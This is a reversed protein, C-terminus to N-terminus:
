DPKGAFVIWGGARFGPLFWPAAIPLAQIADIALVRDIQFGAGELLERLERWRFLHVEMEPIGRYTMRRDGADHHRLLRKGLQGLLWTRGQPDALNLYLNHAHLALTGGPKLIRYSEALARARAENGRIMGLTSFMSLAISFAGDPLCGLDCLNARIRRIELGEALAKAGLAKLMPRSLEVSTVPFGRRAFHLSLRGAGCGLDVLSEPATFRADLVRQDERFLPHGAFFADEDEAIRPTTAYQWLSRNVGQPLQWAPPVDEV